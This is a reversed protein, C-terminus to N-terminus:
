KGVLVLLAVGVIAIVIQWTAITTGGGSPGNPDVHNSIIITADLVRDDDEVLLLRM